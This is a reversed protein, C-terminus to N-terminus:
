TEKPHSHPQDSRSQRAIPHSHVDARVTRLRQGSREVRLGGSVDCAKAEGRAVQMVRELAKADPPHAESDMLPSLWKRLARTALAESAAALGKADQPDLASADLDLAEAASRFASTQRAIVLATDRAAIEDMLPLLENRVRNRLFRPDENSPDMVPALGLEACLKWTESRRLGLIPHDAPSIGAMGDIGAGRLLNILVTEAQDDITHGTLCGEPLVAWRAARARAELNPGDDLEVQLAHFEAGFRVAAAAVVDAEAASGERLGHDVHFASVPQGTAAALALLALSDPGGSVACNLQGDPFSCRSLLEEVLPNM